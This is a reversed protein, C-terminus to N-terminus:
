RKQAMQSPLWTSLQPFAIIVLLFVLLVGCFPLASLFLDRTTFGKPLITKLGFLVLGSPPAISGIESNVTTTVGLWLPDFGLRVFAPFLLPMTIVIITSTELPAGLVLLLLNYLLIVQVPSLNTNLVADALGHAIGLAGAVYSLSFGGLLLMAVMCSIQAARRTSNVLRSWTLQRKVALLVFAGVAGVAAAEPTTAIGTYMSGIILAFLTLIGWVPVLVEFRERWTFSGAPPALEPKLKALVVLYIMLLLSLMIGPVITAIFLRGISTETILGFIVLPVSPPFLIGLTGAGAITGVALRKHYGHRIMQPIAFTGVTLSDAVSSGSVGAFVTCAATSSLALSGPLRNLWRSAAIYADEAVGSYAALAAMFILLPAVIFENQSGKDLALNALVLLNAPGLFVAIMIVSTLGMALGAPTGVFMLAMLLGVMLLASWYWELVV